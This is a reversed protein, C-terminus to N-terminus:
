KNLPSYGCKFSIRYYIAMTGIDSNWNTSPPNRAHFAEKEVDSWNETYVVLWELNPLNELFTAVDIRDSSNSEIALRLEVLKQLKQLKELTKSRKLKDMRQSLIITVFNHRDIITLLEMESWQLITDVNEITPLSSGHYHVFYTAFSTPVGRFSNIGEHFRIVAGTRGDYENTPFISFANTGNNFRLSRFPSNAFHRPQLLIDSHATYEITISKYDDNFKGQKLQEYKQPTDITIRRRFFTM